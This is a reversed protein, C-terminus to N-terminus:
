PAHVAAETTPTARTLRAVLFRALLFGLL